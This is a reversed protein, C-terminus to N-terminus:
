AYLANDVLYRYAEIVSKLREEAAKDGGHLDPHHKKVLAKYRQKLEALTFGDELDLVAMMSAAKSAPRRPLEPRTGDARGFLDFPDRWTAGDWGPATGFRWTPRHWTADGRRHADIQEASMGAFYDWKQNYERVHALCFWAYDRL